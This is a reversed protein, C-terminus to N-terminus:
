SPVLALIQTKVRGMCMQIERFIALNEPSRPHLKTFASDLMQVVDAPPYQRETCMQIMQYAAVCSVILEVPITAETADSDHQLKSDLAPLPNPTCNLKHTNYETPNKRVGLSELVATISSHVDQEVKVKSMAQMATHVLKRAELRSNNLIEIVNSALQNDLSFNDVSNMPSVIGSSSSQLKHLPNGGPYTNHRRLNLLAYTVQDSAEKLQLLVMAYEKKFSESVKMDMGTENKHSMLGDNVFKLETLIAEKKDLARTLEALARIDTERAQVQSVSPPAYTAQQSIVNEAAKVPVASMNHGLRQNMMAIPPNPESLTPLMLSGTGLQPLKPETSNMPLRYLASSERRLAEPMNDLLNSPMCDIDKVFTVGLDPRDFQVRCKDHDVTLVSGDHVERSEPHLAIVRQGVALPRALDTPLGERTGSRLETYHKRVSERYQWLKDREERLFNTSFRRPKGLSSRIVGWEVKTLRPIHGLGVHHLYEVFEKKAFWPYDIASYFWEYTSWRRVMPSSLYRFAKDKLYHSGDQPKTKKNPLDKSNVKTLKMDGHNTIRNPNVKRKNRRKSPLDIADPTPRLATSIASDAAGTRSTNSNSSSYEVLRTSKCTKSPINDENAGIVKNACKEEETSTAEFLSPKNKRKWSKSISHDIPKGEALAKYDVKSERGSKSKGSKSADSRPFENVIKKDALLKTKQRRHGTPPKDEKLVPSDSQIMLSLDALTQLADLGSTEDRFFLKKNRKRKGQSSSQEINEDAVEIGVALGEGTGSCAEGGDDFENDDKQGYFKSRKQYLEEGGVNEAGGSGSSGEFGEEDILNSHLKARVNDLNKQRGKSPTTKMHYPSQSVQPSGGRQLGETLALVAGHAVDDVEKKQSRKYPSVHNGSNDRRSLHNIPFRPTRKRVTCGDSERRKLQLLSRDSSGVLRSQLQDEPGGNQQVLKHTRKKPKHLLKPIDNMEKDNDSGEMANYHDSVMAIFGVVSATGEPLSLYARNMTYLAEVMESNRTRVMAAVKKWDKGYKRYAKYFRDVEEDIWPSGLMDSLKRKQRGSKNAVSKSPSVDVYDSYRRNVSRSKRTPAMLLESRDSNHKALRSCAEDFVRAIETRAYKRKAKSILDKPNCYLCEKLRRPM